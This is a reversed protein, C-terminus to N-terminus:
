KRIKTLILPILLLVGGTVIFILPLYSAFSKTTTSVSLVSPANTPTLAPPGGIIASPIPDNIPTLEPLPTDTPWPATTATPITTPKNTPTPTLTSTNTPVPTNTNVPTPSPTNTPLPTSTPIPTPTLTSTPVLTPTPAIINLTTSNADVQKTTDSVLALRLKLSVNGSIGPAIANITGSYIGNDGITLTPFNTWSTSSALQQSGNITYIQSTSPDVGGYAKIYYIDGSTLGATSYSITFQDGTVIIGTTNTITLTGTALVPKALFIGIFLLLLFM